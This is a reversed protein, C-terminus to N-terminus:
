SPRRGPGRDPALPSANPPVAANAPRAPPGPPIGTGTMQDLARSARRAADLANSGEDEPGPGTVPTPVDQAPVHHSPTMGLDARGPRDLGQADVDDRGASARYVATLWAIVFPLQDHRYGGQAYAVYGDADPSDFGHLHHPRDVFDGSRARYDALDVPVVPLDPTRVSVPLPQWPDGTIPDRGRLARSVGIFVEDDVTLDASARRLVEESAEDM